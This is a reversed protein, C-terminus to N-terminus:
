NLINDITKPTVYLININNQIIYEGKKKIENYKQIYKNIIEYCNQLETVSNIYKISINHPTFSIQKTPIPYYLLTKYLIKNTNDIRLSINYSITFNKISEGYFLEYLEFIYNAKEIMNKFVKDGITLTESIIIKNIYIYSFDSLCITFSNPLTLRANTIIQEKDILLDLTRLKKIKFKGKGPVYTKTDFNTKKNFSDLHLKNMNNNSNKSFIESKWLSVCTVSKSSQKTVFNTIFNSETLIYSLIKKTNDCENIVKCTINTNITKKDDNTLDKYLKPNFIIYNFNDKDLVTYTKIYNITQFQEPSLLPFMGSCDNFNKISKIQDLLTKFRNIYNDKNEKIFINFVNITHNKQEILTLLEILEEM